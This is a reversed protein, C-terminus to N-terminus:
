NEEKGDQDPYCFACPESDSFKGTGDCNKCMSQPILENLEFVGEDAERRLYEEVTLRVENPEEQEYSIETDTVHGITYQFWPDILNLENRLYDLGDEVTTLLPDDGTEFEITLNVVVRKRPIDKM